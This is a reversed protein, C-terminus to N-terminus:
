FRATVESESPIFPYIRVTLGGLSRYDARMYRMRHRHDKDENDQFESNLGVVTFDQRNRGDTCM